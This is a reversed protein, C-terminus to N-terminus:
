AKGHPGEHGGLHPGGDGMGARRRKARERFLYSLTRALNPRVGVFLVLLAALWIAVALLITPRQRLM